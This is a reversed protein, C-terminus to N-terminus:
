SYYSAPCILSPPHLQRHHDSRSIFSRPALFAASEREPAPRTMLWGGGLQGNPFDRRTRVPQWHDDGRWETGPHSPLSCAWAMDDILGFSRWQSAYTQHCTRPDDEVAPKSRAIWKRM